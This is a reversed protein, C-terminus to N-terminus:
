RSLKRNPNEFIFWERLQYRKLFYLLIDKDIKSGREKSKICFIQLTHHRVEAKRVIDEYDGLNIYFCILM